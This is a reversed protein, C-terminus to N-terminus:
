VDRGLGEPGEGEIVVLHARHQLSRLFVRPGAALAIGRRRGFRIGITCRGEIETRLLGVAHLAAVLDLGIRFLSPERDQAEVARERGEEVLAPPKALDLRHILLKWRPRASLGAQRSQTPPLSASVM